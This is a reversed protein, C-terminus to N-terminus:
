VWSSGDYRLLHQLLEGAPWFRPQPGSVYLDGGYVCASYSASTSSNFAIRPGGVVSWNDGDWAAVGGTEIGGAQMFNGVAILRGDYITMAQVTGGTGQGLAHFREGEWRAINAAAVDGALTFYGGIYLAPGNGDDFVTSCLVQGDVGPVSGGQAWGECQGQAPMCAYFIGMALLLRGFCRKVISM